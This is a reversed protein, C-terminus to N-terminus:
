RISRCIRTRRASFRPSTGPTQPLRRFRLTRSRRAARSLPRCTISVANYHGTLLGFLKESAEKGYYPEITGAIQRANAVAQKEAEGAASENGSLTHIAVNRVWFIHGIWLDRLAAGTQQIKVDTAPASYSHQALVPTAPMAFAAAICAAIISPTTRKM